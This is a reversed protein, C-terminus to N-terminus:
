INTASRTVRQVSTTGRFPALPYVFHSSTRQTNFGLSGYLSFSSCEARLELGSYGQFGDLALLRDVLDRLLLVHQRHLDARPLLLQLLPQRLNELGPGLFTLFRLFSLPVTSAQLALHSLQGDLLLEELFIRPARSRDSRFAM